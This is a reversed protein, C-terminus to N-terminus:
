LEECNPCKDRRMPCECEPCKVLPMDVAHISVLWIEEIIGINTINGIEMGDGKAFGRFLSLIESRTQPEDWTWHCFEGGSGDRDIVIYKRM